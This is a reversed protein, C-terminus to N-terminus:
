RVLFMPWLINKKSIYFLIHNYNYSELTSHPSNVLTSFFTNNLIFSYFSLFTLWTQRQDTIFLLYAVLGAVLGAVLM